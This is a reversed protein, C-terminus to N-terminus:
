LVNRKGLFFLVFSVLQAFITAGAAIIAYAILTNYDVSHVGILSSFHFTMDLLLLALLSFFYIVPTAVVYYLWYRKSKVSLGQLGLLYEHPYPMYAREFLM